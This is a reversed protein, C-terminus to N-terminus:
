QNVNIQLLKHFNSYIQVMCTMTFKINEYIATQEPFNRKGEKAMPVVKEITEQIYEVQKELKFGGFMTMLNHVRDISKAATTIPCDEMNKYYIDNPIKVGEVVKSMKITAKAVVEGFLQILQKETVGKDEVTDHLFIVCLTEEPFLFSDIMTIAYLAQSVQHSFEHSGDKRKGNHLKEAFNMARIAKYYGRGELWARLAIKMKPYDQVM